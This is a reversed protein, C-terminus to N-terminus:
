PPPQVSQQKSDTMAQVGTTNAARKASEIKVV